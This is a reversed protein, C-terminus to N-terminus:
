RISSVGLTRESPWRLQYVVWRYSETEATGLLAVHTVVLIM